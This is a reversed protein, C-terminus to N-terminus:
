AAAYSHCAAVPPTQKLPEPRYVRREKLVFYVAYSLKRATAIIASGSGQRAKVQKYYAKLGPDMRLAALTSEILATRLHMNASKVLRGTRHKDGSSYERPILGAYRAFSRATSFRQMDSAEFLLVFTNIGGTKFGPVTRLYRMEPRHAEQQALFVELASIKESLEDFTQLCQNLILRERAPLKIRELWQIGRKCFLNKFDRPRECPWLNRDILIQIQNRISRRQDVLFGRFRVLSRLQRIDLSSVHATPLFNSYTMRAILEADNFDNKTESESIAKMKKPHGLHFEDVHPKVTEYFMGWNRTAELAIQKPGNPLQTLFDIILKPDNDMKKRLVKAGKSDLVHYTSTRKHFDVGITFM